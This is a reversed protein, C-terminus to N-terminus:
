IISVEREAAGEFCGVELVRNIGVREYADPRTQSRGLILATAWGPHEGNTPQVGLLLCVVDAPTECLGAPAGLEPHMPTTDIIDTATSTNTIDGIVLESEICHHCGSIENDREVEPM